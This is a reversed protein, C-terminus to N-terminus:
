GIIERLREIEKILKRETAQAKRRFGEIGFYLWYNGDEPDREWTFTIPDKIKM